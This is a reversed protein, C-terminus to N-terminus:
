KGRGELELLVAKVDTAMGCEWDGSFGGLSNKAVVRHCPILIPLANRGCAGGVARPSTGLERALDGYTRTQGFPIREMADWVRNQFASAGLPRQLPLSFARRQGRFYEDLQRAAEALVGGEPPSLPEEARFRVRCIRGAEAEIALPGLPTTIVASRPTM